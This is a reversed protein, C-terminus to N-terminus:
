GQGPGCAMWDPIRTLTLQPPRTPRGPSRRSSKKLSQVSNLQTSGNPKGTQTDKVGCAALTALVMGLYGLQKRYKV